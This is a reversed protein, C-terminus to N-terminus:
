RCLVKKSYKPSFTKRRAEQPLQDAAVRILQLLPASFPSKQNFAYTAVNGEMRTDLIGGKVLRALARQVEGM